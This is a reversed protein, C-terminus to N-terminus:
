VAAVWKYGMRGLYTHMPKSSQKVNGSMGADIRLTKADWLKITKDTSCSLFRSSAGSEVGGADERMEEDENDNKQRDEYTDELKVRSTSAPGTASSSGIAESTPLFAIDKVMSKHAKPISVLTSRTPLSWLRVEISVVDAYAGAGVSMALEGGDGAGTAVCGLRDPDRSSCYVGDNHGELSDVFPKAFMRDLKSATVARTYERPRAFPHLTPDLNRHQPAPAGLQAPLADDLSREIVKIKM